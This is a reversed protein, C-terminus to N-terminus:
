PLQPSARRGELGPDDPLMEQSRNGRTEFNSYDRMDISAVCSHHNSEHISRQQRGPARATVFHLWGLRALRDAPQGAHHHNAIITAAEEDDTPHPQARSPRQFQPLRGRYEYNTRSSSLAVRSDRGLRPCADVFFCHSPQAASGSIQIQFLL